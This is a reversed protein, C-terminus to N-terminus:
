TAIEEISSPHCKRFLGEEGAYEHFGLVNLIQLNRILQITAQLPPPYTRGQRGSPFEGKIRGGTCRCSNWIPWARSKGLCPSIRLQCMAHESARTEKAPPRAINEPGPATKGLGDVILDPALM